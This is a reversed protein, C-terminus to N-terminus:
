LKAGVKVLEGKRGFGFTLTPAFKDEKPTHEKSEDVGKKIGFSLIATMLKVLSVTEKYVM